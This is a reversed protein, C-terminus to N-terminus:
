TSKAMGKDSVEAIFSRHHHRGGAVLWDASGTDV